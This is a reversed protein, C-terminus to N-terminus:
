HPLFWGEVADLVIIPSDCIVMELTDDEVIQLSNQSLNLRTHSTFANARSNEIPFVTRQLSLSAILMPKSLTTFLTLVERLM